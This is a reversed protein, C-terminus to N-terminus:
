SCPASRPHNRLPKSKMLIDTRVRLIRFSLCTCVTHVWILRRLVRRRVLTQVTQWEYLLKEWMLLYNFPSTSSFYLTFLLPHSYKPYICYELNLGFKGHFQFKTHFPTRSVIGGRERDREWVCVYVSGERFRGRPVFLPLVYRCLHLLRFVFFSSSCCFFRM